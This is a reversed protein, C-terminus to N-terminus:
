SFVRKFAAKIRKGIVCFLLWNVAASLLIAIPLCVFFASVYMLWLSVGSTTWVWTTLWIAWCELTIGGVVVVAVIILDLLSRPQKDTM